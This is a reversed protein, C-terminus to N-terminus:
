TPHFIRALLTVKPAAVVAGTLVAAAIIAVGAGCVRRRKLAPVVIRSFIRTDKM